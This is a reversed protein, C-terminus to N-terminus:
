GSNVRTSRRSRTDIGFPKYLPCVGFAATVLMAAAIALLVIGIVSEAGVVIALVVAAPAVVLARLLRDILGMNISM